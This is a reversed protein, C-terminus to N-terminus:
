VRDFGTIKKVESAIAHCLQDLTHTNQIRSIPNKVLKYFNFFDVEQTTETSELEVIIIAENRHVIGSFTLNSGNREIEILLPNVKEFDESLCSSITAVQEEGLLQKLSQSLLEEPERGLMQFTNLSVQLIKYEEVSVALLVGHPQISNPIHIPERDCIVEREALDCDALNVDESTIKTIAALIEQSKSDSFM